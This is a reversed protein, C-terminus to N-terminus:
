RIGAAGGNDPAPEALQGTLQIYDACMYGSNGSPATVRYWGSNSTDTITLTAGLPVTEIIPNGIGAGTRLNVYATTKGISAASASLPLCTVTLLVALFFAALRMRFCKM